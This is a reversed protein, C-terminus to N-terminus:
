WLTASPVVTVGVIDNDTNSAAVDVPDIGAYDGGVAAALLVTYAINGDDVADDVGTVTVTQALNWNLNTFSLSATSVTGETADGSSVGITVTASPQSDLVVTFTATGGAETTVLPVASPTVTVGVPDNDTNTASVDTPNTGTYDGGVAAALLVTYAVNGDDVADNVGTVTVTQALNWDLTTFSLSATSVTGESPHREVGRDIGHCRSPTRLVM